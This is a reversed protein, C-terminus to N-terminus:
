AVGIVKDKVRDNTAHATEDHQHDDHGDDVLADHQDGPELPIMALVLFLSGPTLTIIVSQNTHNTLWPNFHYNSNNAMIAPPLKM